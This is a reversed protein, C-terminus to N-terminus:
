GAQLKPYMKPLLKKYLVKCIIQVTGFVESKVVRKSLKKIDEGELGEIEVEYVDVEKSTEKCFSKLPRGLFFKPRTVARGGKWGYSRQLCCKESKKM